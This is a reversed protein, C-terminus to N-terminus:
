DAERFEVVGEVLLPIRVVTMGTGEVPTVEPVSELWWPVRVGDIYVHGSKADILVHAAFVRALSM